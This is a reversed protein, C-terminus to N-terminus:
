VSWVAGAREEQQGDRQRSIQVEREWPVVGRLFTTHSDLQDSILNVFTEGEFVQRVPEPSSGISVSRGV